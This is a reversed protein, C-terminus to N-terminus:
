FLPSKGDKGTRLDTVWRFFPNKMRRPDSFETLGLTSHHKGDGLELTTESLMQSEFFGSCVVRVPKVTLKINDAATLTIERPILLGSRDRTLGNIECRTEFKEASGDRVLIMDGSSEGLSGALQQFVVTSDAFHVRGWCRPGGIGEVVSGSRVHDHYGTGRFHVLKRVDGRRGILTIRGSVDARPASVSWADLDTGDGRLDNYPGSEIAVWECEAKIRRKLSTSLDIKLVYGTGYEAAEIRFSSMGIAHGDNVPSALFDGGAFENVTHLAASGDVWYTFCIAPFRQPEDSKHVDSGMHKFYRSSFPYNSHFRVILAESGDDSLADFHWYEHMGQVEATLRGDPHPMKDGSALDAASIHLPDSM